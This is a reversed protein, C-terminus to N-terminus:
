IKSVYEEKKCDDLFEQFSPYLASTNLFAKIFSETDITGTSFLTPYKALAEETHPIYLWSFADTMEYVTPWRHYRSYWKRAYLIAAEKEERKRKQYMEDITQIVRGPNGAIVVGDPYHGSVVAGAAIISNDGIRSGMLITAGQGIFVNNGIWTERAEGVNGYEPLNCFVCRSFDHCLISVDRTIRVYDGIHLMHPRQVDICTHNPSWIRCKKGIEVGQKRLYEIYAESSYTHPFILRKIFYLLEM